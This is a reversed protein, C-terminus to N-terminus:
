QDPAPTPSPPAAPAAPRTVAHLWRLQDVTLPILLEHGTRPDAFVLALPQARNGTPRMSMECATPTSSVLTVPTPIPTM